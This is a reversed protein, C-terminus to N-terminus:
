SSVWLYEGFGSRHWRLPFCMCDIWELDIGILSEDKM